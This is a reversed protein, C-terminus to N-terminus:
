LFFFPLASFTLTSLPIFLTGQTLAPLLLAVLQGPAGSHPIIVATPSFFLPNFVFTSPLITQAPLAKGNCRSHSHGHAWLLLLRHAGLGSCM